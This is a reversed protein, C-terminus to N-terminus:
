ADNFKYRDGNEDFTTKELKMGDTSKEHVTVDLKRSRKFSSRWPKHM